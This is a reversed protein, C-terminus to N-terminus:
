GRRNFNLWGWLMWHFDMVSKKHYEYIETPDIEVLQKVASSKETGMLWNIEIHHLALPWHAARFSIELFLWRLSSVNNDNNNVHTEILILRKRSAGARNGSICGARSAHAAFQERSNLLPVSSLMIIPENQRLFHSRITSNLLRSSWQM